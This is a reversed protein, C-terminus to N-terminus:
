FRGSTVRRYRRGDASASLEYRGLSASQDIDLAPCIASPDVGFASIDIARRLRVILVKAGPDDSSHPAGTIWGTPSQDIAARADCDPLRDGTGRRVRGGSFTSAWDRRLLVQENVPGAQLRVDRAESVDYGPKIVEISPYTGVPLDLAFRGDRASLDVFRGEPNFLLGSVAVLAGAVPRRTLSDRVVGEVQTRPGNRPPPPSFNEQPDTDEPDIQTTAFFGMGRQAFVTWVADRDAGGSVQDAQLIANRMDLFNPYAVSLEMGRTVLNRARRVGEAQGHDAILRTRLDWLTQAWIEGDSHAEPYDLVRAYDGYTYGGSGATSTGPCEQAPAGVPCDLGETRIGRGDATAGAGIIIEGPAVGDAILGQEGLLDFAYFDSWGEGMAGGQGTLAPQGESDVILSTSLGHTYEHYVISADDGGNVDLLNKTARSFLNLVLFAPNGDVAPVFSANDVLEPPPLGRAVDAGASAFVVLAKPGEFAGLPATFGIPPAALHDHFRNVFWFVQTANQFLNARWSRRRRSNWACRAPACVGQGFPTFPYAWNGDPAPPVQVGPDDSDAGADVDAVVHAFPGQLRDARSLYPTLDRTVQQSGAPASPRNDWVLGTAGAALAARRVVEGTRADVLVDYAAAPGARLTVRWALRVGEAAGLYTLRPRARAAPAGAGRGGGAARRAQGLAHAASVAPRPPPVRALDARPSGAVSVLRGDRTVHARLDNDFAPIGHATQAWLLHTTGDIGTWRRRLRLGRVDGFLARHGRVYGLAVAAPDAPSPGTLFGDLRSVTRVGGRLRDMAVVGEPGLAGRTSAAAAAIAPGAAAARAPRREDFDPRAAAAGATAPLALSVLAVTAALRRVLRALRGAGPPEPCGWAGPAGPRTSDRASM